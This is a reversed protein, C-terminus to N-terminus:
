FLISKGSCKNKDLKLKIETRSDSIWTVNTKLRDPVIIEDLGAKGVEMVSFFNSKLLRTKFWFFGIPINHM